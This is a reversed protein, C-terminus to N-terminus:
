ARARFRFARPQTDIRVGTFGADHLRAAFTEPDVPVFTDRYHIWQLGRSWRSDTGAFVGGQRLVRRVERLLKDQADRSPLHHLMTFCVAGSFSGDRFPLTAGNGQIVSVNTDRTRKALSEALARDIEIAVLRSPSRRLVDTALGPGPGVELIAPGLNAGELAWPLIHRELAARWFSSRCIWRHLGNM